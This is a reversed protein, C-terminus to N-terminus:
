HDAQDGPDAFPGVSPICDDPALVGPPAREAKCQSCIARFVRKM